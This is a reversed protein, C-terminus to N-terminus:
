FDMVWNFIVFISLTLIFIKNWVVIGNLHINDISFVFAKFQDVVGSGSANMESSAISFFARDSVLGCTWYNCRSVERM